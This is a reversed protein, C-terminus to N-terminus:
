YVLSYISFSIRWSIGGHHNYELLRLIARVQSMAISIQLAVYLDTMISSPLYRETECVYIVAIFSDSSFPDCHLSVTNAFSM